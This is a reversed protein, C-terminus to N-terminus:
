ASDSELARVRGTEVIEVPYGDLKKPIQKELEPTKKVVLVRICPAGDCRGEATGVVGPIAMLSDTHAKLVEEIPKQMAAEEGAQGAGNPRGGSSCAAAPLACVALAILIWTGPLRRRMM